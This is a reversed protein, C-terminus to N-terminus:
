PRDNGFAIVQQDMHCDSSEGFARGVGPEEGGVVFLREMEVIVGPKPRIQNVEFPM